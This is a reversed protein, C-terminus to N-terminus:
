VRCQSSFSLEEVVQPVYLLAVLVESPDGEFKIEALDVGLNGRSEGCAYPLFSLQNRRGQAYQRIPDLAPQLVATPQLYAVTELAMKALSKGLRRTNVERDEEITLHGIRDHASHPNAAEIEGPRPKRKLVFKVTKNKPQWKAELDKRQVEAGRGKKGVIPYITRCIASHYHKSFYEDEKKFKSNCGSCVWNVLIVADKGVLTEPPLHEKSFTVDSRLCFICPGETDRKAIVSTQNLQDM